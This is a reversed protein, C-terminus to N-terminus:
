TLAVMWEDMCDTGKEIKQEVDKYNKGRRQFAICFFSQSERSGTVKHGDQIRKVHSEAFVHSCFRDAVSLFDPCLDAEAMSDLNRMNNVLM